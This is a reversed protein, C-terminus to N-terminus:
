PRVVAPAAVGRLVGLTHELSFRQRYTTEGRLALADREIQDSLLHRAAAVFAATDGAVTMAVAGTEAWVSETLHGTTTLVPKSNALGAM